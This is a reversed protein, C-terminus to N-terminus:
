GWLLLLLLLLYRGTQSYIRVAARDDRMELMNEGKSVSIRHDGLGVEGRRTM